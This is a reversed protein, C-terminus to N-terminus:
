GTSFSDDRYATVTQRAAREWTFRELVRERASRGMEARLAPSGAIEAIRMRLAAPDNPAVVFGTLGDEVIEPMGGVDSCIVPAGCAMSELLVNGLLEPMEWRGGFADRYVSPLVTVLADHYVHALQEDTADHVFRVDRDAALTRLLALYEEDYVHGVVDLGIGDPLGQILVDIGKHRMIRGVFLVRAHSDPNPRPGVETLLFSETAGGYIVRSPVGKPLVSQSFRSIPLLATLCREVPTDPDFHVGIGGRDTAFTRKGLAAGALIALQSVAIRYQHCHVVDVDRLQALFRYSLPDFPQGGLDGASPYIEIRLEGHRESAREAGFSVLTTPVERAVARALGYAAREGGGVIGDPGFLCPTVHLVRRVDRGRGNKLGRLRACKHLAGALQRMRRVRPDDTAIVTRHGDTSM